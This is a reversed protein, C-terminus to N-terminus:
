IADSIEKTIKSSVHPYITHFFSLLLIFIFIWMFTLFVEYRM